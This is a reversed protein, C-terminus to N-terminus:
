ENKQLTYVAPVDLSGAPTSSTAISIVETAVKMLPGGAATGSSSMEETKKEADKATGDGFGGLGESVSKEEIVM